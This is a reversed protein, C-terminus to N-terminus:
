SPKGAESALYNSLYSKHHKDVRITLLQVLVVEIFLKWLKKDVM